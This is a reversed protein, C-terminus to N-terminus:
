FIPVSIVLTHVTHIVVTYSGCGYVSLRVHTCRDRSSVSKRTFYPSPRIHTFIGIVVRRSSVNSLVSTHFIELRYACMQLSRLVFRSKSVFCLLRFQVNFFFFFHNGFLVVIGYLTKCSSGDYWACQTYSMRSHDRTVDHFFSHHAAETTM